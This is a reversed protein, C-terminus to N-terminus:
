LRPVRWLLSPRTWLRLFVTSADSAKKTRDAPSWIQTANHLVYVICRAVRKARAVRPQQECNCDVTESYSNLLM